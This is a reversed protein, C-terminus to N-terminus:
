PTLGGIPLEVQCRERAWDAVARAAQETAYAQEDLRRMAEADGPDVTAAAEVLETVQQWEEEISLPALQGLARYREVLVPVDAPADLPGELLAAEERLRECFAGTSRTPENSCGSVAALAVLLAAFAALHRAAPM